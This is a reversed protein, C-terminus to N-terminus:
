PRWAKTIWEKRWCPNEYIAFNSGADQPHKLVRIKDEAVGFDIAARAHQYSIQLENVVEVVTFRRLPTQLLIKLNDPATARKTRM